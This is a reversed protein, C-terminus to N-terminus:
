LVDVSIDANIVQHIALCATFYASYESVEFMLLVMPILIPFLPLVRYMCTYKKVPNLTAAELCYPHLLMIPDKLIFMIRVSELRVHISSKIKVQKMRLDVEAPSVVSFCIPHKFYLISLERPSSCGHSNLSSVRFVLPLTVDTLILITHYM